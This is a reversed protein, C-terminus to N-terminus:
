SAHPDNLTEKTGLKGGRQDAQTHAGFFFFPKWCTGFRARQLCRSKAEGALLTRRAVRRQVVGNAILMLAFFFVLHPFSFFFFRDQFLNADIPVQQVRARGAGKHKVLRLHILNTQRSIAKKKKQPLRHPFIESLHATNMTLNM